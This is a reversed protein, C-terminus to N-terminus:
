VTFDPTREPPQKPIGFRFNGGIKRPHNFIETNSSNAWSKAVQLSIEANIFSLYLSSPFLLALISLQISSTQDHPIKNVKMALQSKESVFTEM